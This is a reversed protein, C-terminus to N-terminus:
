DWDIKNIHHIFCSNAKNKIKWDGINDSIKISPVKDGKLIFGDTHIHVIDNIYDKVAYHLKSRACSTLFPGIRAYNTKFQKNRWVFHVNVKEGNAVVKKVLKDRHLNLEDDVRLYETKKNKECLAGWLTNLIPKATEVNDKKLKFCYDVFPKFIVSATELHENDYILANVGSRLRIDLGINLAMKIDYHTYKDNDNYRFYKHGSKIHARYIGYKIDRAAPLQELREYRGEKIPFKVRSQMISPFMSNIDYDTVNEHKGKECYMMGGLIEIFDAETGGIHDPVVTSNSKLYFLYKSIDSIKKAKYLSLLGNTKEYLENSKKIYNSYETKIDCGYCNIFTNNFWCKKKLKSFDSFCMETVNDGDYICVQNNKANYTRIWYNKKRYGKTLMNKREDSKAVSYHGGVLELRATKMHKSESVYQYDGTVFINIGVIDEVESIRDISVGDQSNIKLRKKLYFKDKRLRICPVYELGNLGEVIANYLCNNDCDTKGKKPKIMAVMAFMNHKMDSFDMDVIRNYENFKFVKGRRGINVSPSSRWKDMLTSVWFEGRDGNNKLDKSIRSSIKIIDKETMDDGLINFQVFKTNGQKLRLNVKQITAGNQLTWNGKYRQGRKSIQTKTLNKSSLKVM